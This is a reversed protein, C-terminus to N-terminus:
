AVDQVGCKEIAAKMAPDAEMEHIVMEVLEDLERESALQSGWEAGLATKLASAFLQRGRTETRPKAAAQARHAAENAVADIAESTAPTKRDGSRRREADKAKARLREQAVAIVELPPRISAM